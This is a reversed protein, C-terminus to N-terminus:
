YESNDMQEKSTTIIIGQENYYFGTSVENKSMNGELRNKIHTKLEKKSMYKLNQDVINKTSYAHIFPIM